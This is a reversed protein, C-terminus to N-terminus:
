AQRPALARTAALILMAIVATIVALVSGAAALGATTCTVMVLKLKEGEASCNCAPAGTTKRSRLSAPPARAQIPLAFAKRRM